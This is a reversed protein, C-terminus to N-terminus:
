INGEWLANVYARAWQDTDIICSISPNIVKNHAQMTKEVLTEIELFTCKESLFLDVAAEGASSFVTPMTGGEMAAVYGLRLCGFTDTDPKEFTLTMSSSFDLPKTPTPVCNPFSLAYGIPLRMDPWGLQAIVSNDQFEVMSHVISQRHVVVDIDEPRVDFLQVAEIVELGKNMMTASDITIKAGMSWNPHCLAEKVTVNELENRTKGVFPGGSATLFIRKVAEKKEGICQFIASHESDVPVIRIKKGRAAARVLDGACVMTEKNALAIDSGAEIADLTPLIGVSGVMATVTIDAGSRSAAERVGDLGSLVKTQTDKVNERLIKSLGDDYVAAVKPRFKRIQQELLEINRNAALATVEYEGTYEVIDLTQTGISGTSGLICVKKL